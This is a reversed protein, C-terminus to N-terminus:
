RTSYGLAFRAHVLVYFVYYRLKRTRTIDKLSEWCGWSKEVSNLARGEEPNKLGEKADRSEM